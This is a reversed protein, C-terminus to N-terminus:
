ETRQITEITGTISKPGLFQPEFLQVTVDAGTKISYSGAVISAGDLRVTADDMAQIGGKAVTEVRELTLRAEDEVFYAPDASVAEVDLDRLIVHGLNRITVARNWATIKGGEFEVRASGWAEIVQKAEVECSRCVFNCDEKAILLPEDEDFTWKMNAYSSEGDCVISKKLAVPEGSVSFPALDVVIPESKAVDFREDDDATGVDTLDEASLILPHPEPPSEPRQTWWWGLVAVGGLVLVASVTIAAILPANSTNARRLARVLRPLNAFRRQPSPDLGRRLVDYVARPVDTSPPPPLVEGRSKQTWLAAPTPGDFPRQGYLAEYLAVCFAFQDSRADARGEYQEPAMYAPTGLMSGTATLDSDLAGEAPHPSSPHITSPVAHGARAIGFDAV